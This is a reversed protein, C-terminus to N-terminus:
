LEHRAGRPKSHKLGNIVSRKRAVTFSKKLGLTGYRRGYQGAWLHRVAQYM